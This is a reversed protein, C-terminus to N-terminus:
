PNLADARQGLVRRAVGELYQVSEKPAKARLNDFFSRLDSAQMAPFMQGLMMDQDPPATAAVSQRSFEALEADAFAGHLLPLLHAEEEDLHHLYRGIFRNLALYFGQLRSPAGELQDLGRRLRDVEADLDAHDALLRSTDSLSKAEMMPILFRNENRAHHELFHFVDRAQTRLADLEEPRGADVLGAQLALNFLARRLGKHVNKFVDMREVTSM